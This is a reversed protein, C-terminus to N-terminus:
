VVGEIKSFVKEVLRQAGRIVLRRSSQIAEMSLEELRKSLDCGFRERLKRAMFYCYSVNNSFYHLAWLKLYSRIDRDDEFLSRMYRVEPSTPCTNLSTRVLRRKLASFRDLLSDLDSKRMRVRSQCEMETIWFGNEIMFAHVEPFTDADLYHAYFSIEIDCCLLSKLLEPRLSRLIRFETGQTDLKIWDISTIDWEDCLRNLSTAPVTKDGIVEFWAPYTFSNLRSFDPKLTSSCYPNKTLYVTVESDTDSEVIAKNVRIEGSPAEAPDTTFERSDPDILVFNASGKLRQFPAYDAGSAGVDVITLTVENDRLIRHVDRDHNAM